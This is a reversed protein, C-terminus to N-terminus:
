GGVGGRLLDRLDGLAGAASARLAEFRAPLDTAADRWAEARDLHALFDYQEADGPGCRWVMDGVGLRGFLDRGKSNPLPWNGTDEVFIVPAGGIKFTFLSGHFRDTVMLDLAAFRGLRQHFSIGPPLSAAGPAPAGLFSLVDYGREALWGSIRHRLPESAVAVGALRRSPDRPMPEVLESFDVWVTPDPTFRLREPALGLSELELRTADDRYSIWDFAALADRIAAHRSPDDGAVEGRVPDASVAFSAKPVDLGPRFFLVDPPLRGGVRRDRWVTDSGVILRDYGQAALFRRAEAPDDTTCSAKSLMDARREFRRLGILKRAEPLRFFPPRRRILRRYELKERDWPRYDAIEVRAEPFWEQVLRRLCWAQLVSGDNVSRHYTLIGIKM